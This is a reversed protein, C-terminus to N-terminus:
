ASYGSGLFLNRMLRPTVMRELHAEILDPDEHGGTLMRNRKLQSKLVSFVKKIPNLDPLYPPLYILLVNAADCIDGIQGGHHVTANDMVIVSNRGPFPNM